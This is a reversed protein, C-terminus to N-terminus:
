DEGERPLGAANGANSEVRRLVHEGAAGVVAGYIKLVRSIAFQKTREASRAALDDAYDEVRRPMYQGTRACVLRYDQPVREIARHRTQELLM